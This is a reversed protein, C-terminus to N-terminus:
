GLHLFRDMSRVAYLASGAADECARFALLRARDPERDSVPVVGQILYMRERDGRPLRALLAEYGAVGRAALAQAAREVLGANSALAEFLVRDVDEDEDLLAIGEVLSLRVQGNTEDDWYGLIDRDALVGSLVIAPRRANVKVGPEAARRIAAVVEPREALIERATAPDEVAAEAAAKLGVVTLEEDLSEFVDRYDHDHEGDSDEPAELLQALDSLIANRQQTAGVDALEDILSEVAARDLAAGFKVVPLHKGSEVCRRIVAPIVEADPLQPNAWLELLQPARLTSLRDPVVVVGGAGGGGGDVIVRDIGLGGLDGLRLREQGGPGERVELVTSAQAGFAEQMAARYQAEARQAETDLESSVAVGFIRSARERLKEM